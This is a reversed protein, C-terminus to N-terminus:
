DGESNRLAAARLSAEAMVEHPFRVLEAQRPHERKMHDTKGLAHLAGALVQAQQCPCLESQVHIAAMSADIGWEELDKQDNDDLDVTLTLVRTTTM